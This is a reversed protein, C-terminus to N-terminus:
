PFAIKQISYALLFAGLDHGPNPALAVLLSLHPQRLQHPSLSNPAPPPM